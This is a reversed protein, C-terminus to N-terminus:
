PFMTINTSSITHVSPLQTDAQHYTSTFGQLVASIYGDDIKYEQYDFKPVRCAVSLSAPEM